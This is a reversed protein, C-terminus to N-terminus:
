NVYWKCLNLWGRAAEESRWPNFICQRHCLCLCCSCFRHRCRHRDWEKLPMNMQELLMEYREVEWLLRRLSNLNNYVGGVVVFFSIFYNQFFFFAMLPDPHNKQRQSDEQETKWLDVEDVPEKFHALKGFLRKKWKTGPCRNVAAVDAACPQIQLTHTHAGSHTLRVIEPLKGAIRQM